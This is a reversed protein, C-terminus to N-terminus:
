EVDVHYLLYSVVPRRIRRDYSLLGSPTRVRCTRPAVGAPRRRLLVVKTGCVRHEVRLQRQRQQLCPVRGGDKKLEAQDPEDVPLVARPSRPTPRPHSCSPLTPAPFTELTSAEMGDVYTSRLSTQRSPGFLHRSSGFDQSIQLGNCVPFSLIPIRNQDLYPCVTRGNGSVGISFSPHIWLM